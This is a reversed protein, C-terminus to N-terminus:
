EVELAEAERLHELVGEGECLQIRISRLELLIEFEQELTSRSEPLRRLVGRAQEFWACADQLASRAEAKKGAQRFYHAAKEWLEGRQAHHALQESHEAL